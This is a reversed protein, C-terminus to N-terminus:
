HGFVDKLDVDFHKAMERILRVKEDAPCDPQETAIDLEHAKQLQQAIEDIRKKLVNFEDRTVDKPPLFVPGPLGSIPNQTSDFWAPFQVPLVGKHYDGVASSFCM